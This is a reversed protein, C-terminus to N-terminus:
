RDPSNSHLSPADVFETLGAIHERQLLGRIGGRIRRLHQDLHQRSRGVEGVDEHAATLVLDLRRQGECGTDFQTTFHDRDTFRHGFECHPVPHDTIRTQRGASEGLVRYQILVVRERRRRSEVVRFCGSQADAILCRPESQMAAGLQELTLRQQDVSSRTTDTTRCHLEALRCAGLHDTDDAARVLGLVRALEAGVEDYVTM